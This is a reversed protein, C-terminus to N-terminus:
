EILFKNIQTNWGKQHLFGTPDCACRQNNKDLPYLHVFTEPDEYILLIGLCFAHMKLYNFCNYAKGKAPSSM